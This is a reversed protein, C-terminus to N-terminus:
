ADAEPRLCDSFSNEQSVAKVAYDGFLIVLAPSSRGPPLIRGKASLRLKSPIM